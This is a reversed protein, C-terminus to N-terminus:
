KNTGLDILVGKPAIPNPVTPSPREPLPKPNNVDYVIQHAYLTLLALFVLGVAVVSIKQAKEGLPTLDKGRYKKAPNEAFDTKTFYSESEVDLPNYEQRPM